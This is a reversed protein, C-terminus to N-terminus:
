PCNATYNAEMDHSLFPEAAEWIAFTSYVAGISDMTSNSAASAKLAEIWAALAEHAARASEGAFPDAALEVLTADLASAKRIVDPAIARWRAPHGASAATLAAEGEARTSLLELAATGYRCWAAPAPPKSASAAPTVVQAPTPSAAPASAPSGACAALTLGLFVVVLARNM